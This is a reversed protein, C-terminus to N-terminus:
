RRGAIRRMCEDDAHVRPPIGVLDDLEERRFLPAHPRRRKAAATRFARERRCELEEILEIHTERFSLAEVGHARRADLVVRLFEALVDDRHGIARENGLADALEQGFLLRLGTDIVQQARDKRRKFRAIRADDGQEAHVLEHFKRAQLEAILTADMTAPQKFALFLREKEFIGTSREARVAVIRACNWIWGRQAMKNGTREGKVPLALLRQHNCFFIEKRGLLHQNAIQLPQEPM